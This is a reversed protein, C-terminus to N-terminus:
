RLREHVVIDEGTVLKLIDSETFKDGTIDEDEEIGAYERVKGDITSRGKLKELNNKEVFRDDWYKEGEYLKKLFDHLFDATEKHETSASLKTKEKSWNELKDELEEKQEELEEIEKELRHIEQEKKKIQSKNDTIKMEVERIKNQLDEKNEIDHTKRMEEKIKQQVFKSFEDIHEEAYEEVKEDSLSVSKIGSM